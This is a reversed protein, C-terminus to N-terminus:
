QREGGQSESAADTVAKSFEVAKKDAAGRNLGSAMGGTKWWEPFFMAASESSVYTDLSRLIREFDEVLYSRDRNAYNVVAASLRCFFEAGTTKFVVTKDRTESNTFVREVARWYNLFIANRRNSDFLALPHNTTLISRKISAAFARETITFGADGSRIQNPGQIQGQWPSGETTNLFRIINIAEDDTGREVERSIWSPIYPLKHTELMRFFRARIHMGVAPDVARQTTNVVYFHLMQEVESTEVAINAPIPFGMLEPRTTAARLIGDIRHQGDVVDFPCVDAVRFTIENRQEDFAIKKETALFVSTPLFTQRGKAWAEVAYNALKKARAEQLIRQFGGSEPNASEPDLRNVRYFDPRAFDRAMFSTAFLTKEGQQIMVAPRKITETM